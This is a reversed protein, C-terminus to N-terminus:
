AETYLKHYRGRLALLEAHTGQEVVRGKDILLIRDATRVTSLRHAIIFSTRGRITNRIADQILMETETDVSSTAEDLIFISPDALLARAICVLQKQGTSLGGGGKSVVHGYGDEFATIFEHARVLKAAAEVEEDTAHLNGYRINDRITGSFLHPTQLMYGLNSHIRMMPITRYERGDILIEGDTPEYFRCLLNVITTKGSGTEGVLAVCEGPKV